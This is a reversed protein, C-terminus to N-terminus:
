VLFTGGCSNKSIPGCVRMTALTPPCFDRNKAPFQRVGTTLHDALRELQAPNM